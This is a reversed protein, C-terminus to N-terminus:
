RQQEHNFVDLTLHVNQDNLDITHGPALCDYYTTEGNQRFGILAHDFIFPDPLAEGPGPLRPTGTLVVLTEVEMKRLLTAALLAFDKCDGWGRRLVTAPNDPLLDHDPNRSARYALDTNMFDLVARIKEDPLSNRDIWSLKAPFDGAALGAGLRERFHAQYRSAIEEWSAATSIMLDLRTISDGSWAFFEACDTSQRFEGNQSVCCTFATKRPFSIRYSATKVPIEQDIHMFDAFLGAFEPFDRAIAATLRVSTGAPLDNEDDTKWPVTQGDPRRAEVLTGASPDTQDAFERLLQKIKRADDPRSIELKWTYHGTIRWDADINVEKTRSLFTLAGAPEATACLLFSLGFLLYKISINVPM